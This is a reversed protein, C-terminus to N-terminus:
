LKPPVPGAPPSSTLLEAAANRRAERFISISTSLSWLWSLAFLIAGTVGIWGMPHPPTGGSIQAYYQAIVVFFWVLVLVFGAVALALQGCGALWRGAM